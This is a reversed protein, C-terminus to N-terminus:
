GEKVSLSRPLAVLDSGACLILDIGRPFRRHNANWRVVFDAPLGRVHLRRPEALGPGSLEFACGDEFGDVQLILTAGDQPRDDSGANLQALDPMALALAFDAEALTDVMRPTTHFVIWERATGAAEDLHLATDADILTLLVAASAQNLPAPPTLAAGAQVIKGPRSIAELVARFTSQAGLVPDAFGPLDLSM